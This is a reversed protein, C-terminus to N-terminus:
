DEEIIDELHDAVYVEILQVTHSDISTFRWGTCFHPKEGMGWCLEAEVRPLPPQLGKLRLRMWAKGDDSLLRRVSEADGGELRIGQTSLDLALLGTYYLPDTNPIEVDAMWHVRVRPSSRRKLAFWDKWEEIM